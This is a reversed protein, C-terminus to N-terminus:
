STSGAVFGNSQDIFHSKVIQSNAFFITDWNTGGDVTKMLQNWYSTVFVTDKNLATVQGAGMSLDHYIEQWQGFSLNSLILFFVGSIIRKMLHLNVEFKWRVVRMTM